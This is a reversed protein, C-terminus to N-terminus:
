AEWINKLEPFRLFMEKYVSLYDNQLSIKIKEEDDLKIKSPHVKQNKLKGVDINVGLFDTLQDIFIDTDSSLNEYYEVMIQEKPFVTLWNDIIQPYNGREFVSPIKSIEILCDTTITSENHKIMKLHSIARDIPARLMLIIKMKPNMAFVHRIGEIPLMAYEPTVEGVLKQKPACSFLKKYWQSDVNERTLHVLQNLWGDNINKNNTLAQNLRNLATERRGSGSYASSKKFYLANFFNLEKIPPVWVNDQNQLVQYLWTTASKQAGICLFDPARGKVLEEKYFKPSLASSHVVKSLADKIVASQQYCEAQYLAAVSNIEAIEKEVYSFESGYNPNKLTEAAILSKWYNVDQGFRRKFGQNSRHVSVLYQEPHVVSLKELPAPSYGPLIAEAKSKKIFLLINQKYWWCVKDNHWIAPRIIDFPVFDFEAFIEAWYEPWNENVHGHGGQYPIAASFLVIDASSCLKKVFPNASTAPLHEAVELSMALDFRLLPLKINEPASLDNPFFYEEPILLRDLPVYDGDTGCVSKIGLEKAAALWPAVGCGFDIISDLEYPIISQLEKIVTMASHFSQSSQKDYFQQNYLNSKLFVGLYGIWPVLV